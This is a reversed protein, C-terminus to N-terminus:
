RYAAAGFTALAPRPWSILRKLWDSARMFRQCISSIPARSRVAIAHGPMNIVGGSETRQVESLLM